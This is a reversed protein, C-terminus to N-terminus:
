ESFPNKFIKSIESPNLQKLGFWNIEVDIPNPKYEPNDIITKNLVGNEKEYFRIFTELSMRYGPCYIIENEIRESLNKSFPTKSLRETKESPNGFISIESLYEIMKVIDGIFCYINVSKLAQKFLILSKNNFIQGVIGNRPCSHINGFPYNIRLSFLNGNQNNKCIWDDCIKKSRGYISDVEAFYSSIQIFIDQPRVFSLENQIIKLNREIISEDKSLTQVTAACNIFVIRDSDTESTKEIQEPVTIESVNEFGESHVSFISNILSIPFPKEFDHEKRTIWVVENGKERLSSVLETGVYGAGFIVFKMKETIKRQSGFGSHNGSPNSRDGSFHFQFSLFLM